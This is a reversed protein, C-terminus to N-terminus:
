PCRSATDALRHHALRGKKSSVGHRLHTSPVGHSPLTCQPQLLAFGQQPAASAHCMSVQQLVYRHQANNEHYTSAALQRTNKTRVSACRYISDGGAGLRQHLTVRLTSTAPCRETHYNTPMDLCHSMVLHSMSHEQLIPRCASLTLTPPLLQQQRQILPVLPARAKMLMHRSTPRVAGHAANHQYRKNSKNSKHLVGWHSVIRERNHLM